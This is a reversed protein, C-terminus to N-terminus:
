NSNEDLRKLTVKSRGLAELTNAMSEYDAAIQLLTERVDPDSKTEAKNRAELAKIRYQKCQATEDDMERGERGWAMISDHELTCLVLLAGVHDAVSHV